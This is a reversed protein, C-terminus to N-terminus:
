NKWDSRGEEETDTYNYSAFQPPLSPGAIEANEVFHRIGKEEEDSLKMKLAGWNEEMYNVRKTGPIPFIDDGQKLLWALALQAVSCGKKAALNEFDSIIKVNKGKNGEMFRPMIHPRKDNMDGM